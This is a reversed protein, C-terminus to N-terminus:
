DLRCAVPSGTANCVCNGDRDCLANDPCGVDACLPLAADPPAPPEDGCAVLALLFALRKV